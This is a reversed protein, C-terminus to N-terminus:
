GIKIKKRENINQYIENLFRLVNSKGNNNKGIFLNIKEFNSFYQIEGFSRYGGIAINNIIKM